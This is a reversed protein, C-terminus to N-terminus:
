GAEHDSLGSVRHRLPNTDISWTVGHDSLAALFGAADFAQAATLV